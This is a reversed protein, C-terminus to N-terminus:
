SCAPFLKPWNGLAQFVFGLIVLAAGTLFVRRRWAWEVLFLRQFERWMTADEDQDPALGGREAAANREYANQLEGIRREHERKFVHYWEYAIILFGVVDLAQGIISFWNQCM